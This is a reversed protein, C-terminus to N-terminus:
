DFVSPAPRNTALGTLVRNNELQADLMDSMLQTQRVAESAIIENASRGMITNIAGAVSGSVSFNGTGGEAMEVDDEMTYPRSLPEDDDEGEWDPMKPTFRENMEAMRRELEDIGEKDFLSAGEYEKFANGAALAMGLAGENETYEFLMDQGFATASRALNKAANSVKAPIADLTFASDVMRSQAAERLADAGEQAGRAMREGSIPIAELVPILANEMVGAMGLELQSLLMSFVSSLGDKLSTVIVNGLNVIANMLPAFSEQSLMSDFLYSAAAKVAAFVSLFGSYAENIAKQFGLSIGTYLYTGLEGAIFAQQMRKVYLSVKNIADAIGEVVTRMINLAGGDGFTMMLEEWASKMRLIAAHLTDDMTESMRKATGDANELEKSLASLDGASQSLVQAAIGARKGFIAYANGANVGHAQLKQFITVLSNMKSPIIDGATLGMKLLTKHAKGNTNALEVMVGRLSTGAMSARINGNALVGLAAAVDNVNQGMGGAAPGLYKFAEGMQDLSTKSRSSAAALRDVYFETESARAGFAYLVGSVIDSSKEMDIQAAQALRLTSPLAAVSQRASLGAQGLKVLAEASDNATFVTVQALARAEMQMRKFNNETFKGSEQVVAKVRAMSNEFDKNSVILSKVAQIAIRYGQYAIMALGISRALMMFGKGKSEIVRVSERMSSNASNTGQKVQSLASTTRNVQTVMKSLSTNMKKITKELDRGGGAANSLGKRAAAAATEVKKLQTSMKGVKSMATTVKLMASSAQKTLGSLQTINKSATNLGDTSKRASSSLSDIRNALGALAQTAQSTKALFNISITEARSAM